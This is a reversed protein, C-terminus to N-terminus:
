NFKSFIKSDNWGVHANVYIVDILNECIKASLESKVFRLKIM